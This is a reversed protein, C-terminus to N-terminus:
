GIRGVTGSPLAQEISDRSSLRGVSNNVVYTRDDVFKLDMVRGVVRIEEDEAKDACLTARKDELVPEVPEEEM